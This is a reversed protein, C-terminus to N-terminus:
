TESRWAGDDSQRSLLYEAALDLADDIGVRRVEGRRECAAVLVVLCCLGFIVGPRNKKETM